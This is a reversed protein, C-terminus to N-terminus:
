SVSAPRKLPGMQRASVTALLLSGERALELDPGGPEGDVRRM